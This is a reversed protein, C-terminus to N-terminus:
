PSQPRPARPTRELHPDQRHRRVACAATVAPEDGLGPYRSRAATEILAKAPAPVYSGRRVALIIKSRLPPETQRILRLAGSRIERLVAWQPLMSIGASAKLMAKITEVNDFRMSVRPHFDHKEMYGDIAKELQSGSKFLIFPFAELAHIQCRRPVERSATVLVIEFDWAVEETLRERGPADPNVMIALDLAGETLNQILWVTSGTEVVVEIGPHANRFQLLLEPLLEISIGPGSGLRVTATKSGQWERLAELTSEYRLLLDTAHPLLVQAAQTLQLRRGIKEYLPTQLEEELNKLQKHIAAPSLHLTEATKTINSLKALTVFSRIQRLDM